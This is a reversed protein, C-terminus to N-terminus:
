SEIEIIKDVLNICKKLNKKDFNYWFKEKKLETNKINKDDSLVRIEILNNKIEKDINSIKLIKEKDKPTKVYVLTGFYFYDKKSKIILIYYLDINKYNEKWGILYNKLNLKRKIDFIESINAINYNIYYIEKSKKKSIDGLSLFDSDKFYYIKEEKKNLIKVTDDYSFYIYDAIKLIIVILIIMQYIKKNKIYIKKVKYFIELFFDIIDYLM